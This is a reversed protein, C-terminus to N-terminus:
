SKMANYRDTKQTSCARRSACDPGNPDLITFDRLGYGLDVTLAFVRADM